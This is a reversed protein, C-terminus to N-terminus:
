RMKSGKLGLRLFLLQWMWLASDLSGGEVGFFVLISGLPCLRINERKLSLACISGLPQHVNRVQKKEAM